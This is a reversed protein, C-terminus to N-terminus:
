TSETEHRNRQAARYAQRVLPVIASETYGLARAAGAVGTRQRLAADDLLRDLADALRARDGPPVVLGTEESVVDRLGGVDCAVVPTGVAMAEIAVLGQPEAWRSPVVAVKASALSAMVPGHALSGAHIVPREPTGSRPHQRVQAPGIVVLPIRHRMQRHAEVLTDVGKHAGSAGVFVIYEGAPLCDPPVAASAENAVDDAVFSPIIRVRKPGVDPMSARVAASIPLFMDIRGLLPRTMALGLVLAGGKVAGYADRGCPLCRGLAPGECCSDLDQQRVLTKKACTLGYDHLTHVLASGLPLRLLLCSFVIWGHAHVVDPRIEDVLHQLAMTLAPDPATPHFRHNPDTSFRDLHRSWGDVGVVRVGGVVGVGPDDATAGSPHGLTAVTVEDGARVLGHALAQVARELGGTAPPYSDCVLLVKM